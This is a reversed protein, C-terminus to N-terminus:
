PLFYGALYIVSTFYQLITNVAIFELSFITFIVNANQNLHPQLNLSLHTKSRIEKYNAPKQM